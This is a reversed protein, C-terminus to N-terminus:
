KDTMETLTIMSRGIETGVENEMNVRNMVKFMIPLNKDSNCIQTGKFKM